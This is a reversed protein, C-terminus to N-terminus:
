SRRRTRPVAELPRRLRALTVAAGGLVILMSAIATWDSAPMGTNPSGGSTTPGEGSTDTGTSTSPQSADGPVATSGGGETVLPAFPDRQADQAAAVPAMGFSALCCIAVVFSRM